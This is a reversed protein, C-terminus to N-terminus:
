SREVEVPPANRFLDLVEGATMEWWPIGSYRPGRTVDVWMQAVGSLDAGVPIAEISEVAFAAASGFDEQAEFTDELIKSAGVPIGYRDQVEQHWDESWNKGEMSPLTCGLLCGRYSDDAGNRQYFGQVIEDKARHELMRAVVEAKLAPDGHWAGKGVNIM